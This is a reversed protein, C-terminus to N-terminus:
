LKGPYKEGIASYQEAIADHDISSLFTGNAKLYNSFGDLVLMVDMGVNNAMSVVSDLYEYDADTYNVPDFNIRIYNAGLAQADNIAAETDSYAAYGDNHINVGKMFDARGSIDDPGLAAAFNGGLFAFQTAFIAVAILLSLIKSKKM